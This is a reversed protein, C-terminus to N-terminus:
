FRSPRRAWNLIRSALQDQLLNTTGAFWEALSLQTTPLAVTQCILLLLHYVAPLLRTGPWAYVTVTSVPAKMDCSPTATGPKVVRMM